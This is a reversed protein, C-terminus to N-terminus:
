TMTENQLHSCHHILGELGLLTQGWAEKRLTHGGIGAVVVLRMHNFVGVDLVNPGGILTAKDLRNVACAM